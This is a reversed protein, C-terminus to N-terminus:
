RPSTRETRKGDRSGLHKTCRGPELHNAWPPLRAARLAHRPARQLTRTVSRRGRIPLRSGRFNHTAGPAHDRVDSSEGSEM